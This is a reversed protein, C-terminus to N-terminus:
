TLKSNIKEEVLKMFYQMEADSLGFEEFGYKDGIENYKPDTSIIEYNGSSNKEIKIKDGLSGTFTLDIKGGASPNKLIKLSKYSLSAYTSNGTNKNTINGGNVSESRLWRDKITKRIIDELQLICSSVTSELQARQNNVYNLYEEIYEM